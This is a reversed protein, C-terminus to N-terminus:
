SKKNAADQQNLIEQNNDVFQKMEQVLIQEAIEQLAPDLSRMYEQLPGCFHKTLSIFVGNTQRSKIGFTNISHQCVPNAYLAKWHKELWPLLRKKIRHQIKQVQPKQEPISEAVVFHVDDWRYFDKDITSKRGAIELAEEKTRCEEEWQKHFLQSTIKGKKRIVKCGCIVILFHKLNESSM